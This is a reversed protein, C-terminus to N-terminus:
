QAFVSWDNVSSAAGNSADTGTVAATYQLDDFYYAVAGAASKQYIFLGCWECTSSLTGDGTIWAVVPASTVDWSFQQWGTFNIDVPGTFQEYGANNGSDCMYVSLQDGSNNGYVAWSVYQESSHDAPGTEVLSQPQVRIVGGSAGDWTWELKASLGSGSTNDQEASYTSAAASAGGSSGSATPSWYTGLATTDSGGEFDQIVQDASAMTGFGMLAGAIAFAVFKKM